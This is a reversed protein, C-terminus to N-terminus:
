FYIQMTNTIDKQAIIEEKQMLIISTIQRIFVRLRSEIGSLMTTWLGRAFNCNLYNLSSETDWNMDRILKCDAPCEKLGGWTSSSVHIHHLGPMIDLIWLKSDMKLFFTTQVPSAESVSVICYPSARSIHLDQGSLGVKQYCESVADAPSEIAHASGKLCAFM